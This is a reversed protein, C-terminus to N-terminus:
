ASRRRPLGADSRSPVSGRTLPVTASVWGVYGCRPCGPNADVTGGGAPKAYVNACDLCRVQELARLDARGGDGTNGM